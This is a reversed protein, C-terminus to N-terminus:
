IMKEDASDSGENLKNHFKELRRNIRNKTDNFTALAKLMFKTQHNSAKILEQQKKDLTDIDHYVEDNVGFISTLLKGLVGRKQRKDSRAIRGEVM